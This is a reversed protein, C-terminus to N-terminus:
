TSQMTSMSSATLTSSWCSLLVRAIPLARPVRVISLAPAIPVGRRIRVILSVL